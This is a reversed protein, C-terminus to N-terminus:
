SWSFEQQSRTAAQLRLVRDCCLPGDRTMVWFWFHATARRVREQVELMKKEKKGFVRFEICLLRKIVFAVHFGPFGQWVTNIM